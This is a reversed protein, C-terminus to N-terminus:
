RDHGAEAARLAEAFRRGVDLTGAADFHAANAVTAASTDV